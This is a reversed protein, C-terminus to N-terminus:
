EGYIRRFFDSSKSKRDIAKSINTSSAGHRIDNLFKFRLTIPAFIEREIRVRAISDSNFLKVTQENGTKGHSASHSFFYCYSTRYFSPLKSRGFTVFRSPFSSLLQMSCFTSHFPLSFTPFLLLRPTHGTRSLHFRIDIQFINNETYFEKRYVFKFFFFWKEITKKERYFDGIKILITTIKIVNWLDWNVFPNYDLGTASRTSRCRVIYM